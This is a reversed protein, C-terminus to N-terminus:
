ASKFHAPSQEGRVAILSFSLIAFAAAGVMVLAMPLASHEGALGVLPSAIAAFCFQLAGLLASGTGATRPVQGIALASANGLIMGLSAISVFLAPLLLVAGADTVVFLLTAVAGVATFGLGALTLRRPGFTSVLKASIASVVVLGVANFGFAMSYAVPSLGLIGQFVFPSAAIYAFMVMFAFSVTLIYGVCIRNSLVTAIGNRLATFGGAMREEEPLSEEVSRLVGVFSLASLLSIVLFVARWGSLAVVGTGIMPALVPALGGIMMMVQFLQASTNADSARDSIIARAIVVGAAGGLGQLFRLAILTEVNPTVVCFMGSLITLATGILLPRRRGFRDSLPGIILQGSAMGIMFSTLTMQVAPASAGLDALMLPFGPLYMDTALPAVASLLALVLVTIVPIQSRLPTVDTDTM